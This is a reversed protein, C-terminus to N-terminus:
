QNDPTNLRGVDIKPEKQQYKNKQVMIQCRYVAKVLHHDSGCNAGHCTRVDIISSANRRQILLHDIQNHTIGDPSTWTYKHIGKHPCYTSSVVLDKSFTFDRLRQGSDNSDHHLSHNGVTGTYTEDRGIKANLDGIVMKIDNTPAADYAKEL